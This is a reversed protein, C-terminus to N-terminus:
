TEQYGRRSSRRSVGHGSTGRNQIRGNGSEQDSRDIWMGEGATRQDERHPSPQFHTDIRIGPRRGHMEGIVATEGMAVNQSLAVPDNDSGRVIREWAKARFILYTQAMPKEQEPHKFGMIM